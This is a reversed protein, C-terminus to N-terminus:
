LGRGSVRSDRSLDSCTLGRYVAVYAQAVKDPMFDQLFEHPPSGYRDHLEESDLIKQVAQALAAANKPPVLLGREQKGLLMGLGGVDTAVIPIGRALGELAVMGFAEYRSPILLVWCSDYLTRLQDDSPAHRIEVRDAWRSSWQHIEGLLTGGPTAIVVSTHPNAGLVLDLSNMLERIGKAPELRGVFLITGPSRRAANTPPESVVFRPLSNGIKVIKSAIRSSLGMVIIREVETLVVVRDVLSFVMKGVVADFSRRFFRPSNGHPHINPNFVSPVGVIRAMLACLLAYPSTYGHIHVISPSQHIAKMMGPVLPVISVLNSVLDVRNTQLPAPSEVWIDIGALRLSSSLEEIVRGIGGKASRLSDSLFLVNM